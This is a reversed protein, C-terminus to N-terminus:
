PLGATSRLVGLDFDSTPVKIVRYTLNGDGFALDLIDRGLSDVETFGAGPILGWGIVRSGDPSIRFSGMALSSTTGTSQWTVTATGAPGSAGGDGCGDSTGGDAGGVVVDYVVARAARSSYSQDDFMSIHGSGGNCAPSWDPQFRADHQQAFPDAVSVYTAGDKSAVAGGMKWVVRGTSKDVYFISDMERASVLLNGTVPEVDISNCHFPDVLSNGFPGAPTLAPFVSDAVADFHDTATWSWVVTGDPQVELLDCALITQPGSLTEIGGDLLPVQMGTLDVGPQAPSSIVLFDGNPLLRLEHLDVNQVGADDHATVVGVGLPDLQHVEFEPPADIISDFSVAGSVVEDVDFVCNGNAWAARSYWVPVGHGDLVMAFCGTTPPVLEDDPGLFLATGLLYYGAPPTGVNPHPTWQLAPFDHPLCRVWYEVTGAGSTAAAVLAQDENVSVSLTQQPLAPSPLPQVLLSDAGPSATMSVTLVNAGAACRVYYDHVGPSFSPYLSIPPASDGPSPASVGLAVLSPQGAEVPADQSPSVDPLADDVADSATADPGADDVPAADISADAESSAAGSQSCALSGCVLAWSAVAGAVVLRLPLM